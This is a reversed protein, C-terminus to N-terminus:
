HGQGGRGGPGVNGRWRGLKELSAVLTSTARDGRALGGEGRGWMM